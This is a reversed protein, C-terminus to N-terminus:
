VVGTRRRHAAERTKRFAQVVEGIVRPDAAKLVDRTWEVIVGDTEAGEACTLVCMAHHRAEEVSVQVEKGDFEITVFPGIKFGFGSSVNIRKQSMAVGLM